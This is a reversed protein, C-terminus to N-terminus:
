RLNLAIQVYIVWMQHTTNIAHFWKLAIRLRHLQLAM